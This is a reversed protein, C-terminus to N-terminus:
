VGNRSNAIKKIAELWEKQLNEFPVDLIASKLILVVDFLINNNNNKNFIRIAEKMRRKARHRLVSNGIRKTATIGVLGCSYCSPIYRVIFSTSFFSLGEKNLRLYDKRAKM